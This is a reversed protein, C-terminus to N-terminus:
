PRTTDQLHPRGCRCCSRSHQLTGALTCIHGHSLMELLLREPSVGEHTSRVVGCTGIIVALCRMLYQMVDCCSDTISKLCRFAPETIEAKFDAM